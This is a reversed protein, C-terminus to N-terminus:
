VVSFGRRLRVNAASRRASEWPGPMQYMSDTWCALGTRLSTKRAGGEASRPLLAWVLRLLHAHGSAARDDVRINSQGEVVHEEQRPAGLDQGAFRVDGGADGLFDRDTDRDQGRCHVGNGFRPQGNGDSLGAADADDMAIERRGLLGILD